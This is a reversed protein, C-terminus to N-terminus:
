RILEIPCVSIQKWNRDATVATAGSLLALALCARDGFSLGLNKTIPRLEAAKRAQRTDFDVVAIGIRAFDKIDEDTLQDQEALKSLVEAVNVASISAERVLPEVIEHGTEGLIVALVASSDLVWKNM